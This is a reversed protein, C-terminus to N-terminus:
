DPDIEIVNKGRTHGESMYALARATEALPVRRDIVSRLEGRDAHAALTAMDDNDYSAVFMRVSRKGVMARGMLGLVWGMPGFWRGHQYGACPVLVGDDALVRDYDRWRHRGVLDFIVDYPGGDTTPDAETYDVVHDAGLETVMAVKATSCVGTVEAGLAKALQVAYHGVGGSAGIILVRHGEKVRGHDRLGQLATLGAVPVAAADAFAMTSPMPAVADETVVLREACAGAAVEGWVRDGVSFRDVASGVAEVAGALDKGPIPHKPGRLGMSLRGIYPEGTAGVWDAPNVSSAEVRILVQDDATIVPATVEAEAFVDTPHGYGSQVIARMVEM